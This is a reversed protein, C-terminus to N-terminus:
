GNAPALTRDNSRSRRVIGAIADPDLIEICGDTTAIVGERRLDRLVRAVVERVTGVGDALEQQTVPAVLRDTHHEETALELLHRAVRERMSGFTSAALTVYAHELRHLLEAVFALAVRGDEIMLERLTTRDFELITSAVVAQIRITARANTMSGIVAGPRALRVSLRRGDGSMLYTRTMGRILLGVRDPADTGPFVPSGAQVDSLVADALLRERAVEPLAALFTGEQVKAGRVLAHHIM